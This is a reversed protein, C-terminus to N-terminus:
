RHHDSGHYAAVFARMGEAATPTSTKARSAPRKARGM